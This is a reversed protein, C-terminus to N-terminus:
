VNATKTEKNRKNANTTKTQQYSPQTLSISISVVSRTETELCRAPEQKQKWVRLQFNREHRETELRRGSASRTEVPHFSKGSSKCIFINDQSGTSHTYLKRITELSHFSKSEESEKKVRHDSTLLLGRSTKHSIFGSVGQIDKQKSVRLQILGQKVREKRLSEIGCVLM